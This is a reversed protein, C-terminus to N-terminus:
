PYDILSGVSGEIGANNVLYDIGGFRRVAEAAYRDVEAARTVDAAVALAVGGAAAVATVADDLPATALDVLVVRAGERAFRVATAQGIGGAAGTLVVVKGDFRGSM